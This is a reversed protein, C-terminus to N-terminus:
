VEDILAQIEAYPFGECAADVAAQLQAGELNEAILYDKLLQRTSDGLNGKVAILLSNWSTKKAYTFGLDSADAYGKRYGQEYETPGTLDPTGTPVITPSNDPPPPTPM